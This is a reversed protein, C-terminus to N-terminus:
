KVTLVCPIVLSTDVVLKRKGRVVHKKGDGADEASELGDLAIRQLWSYLGEDKETNRTAQFDKYLKLSARDVAHGSVEIDQIREGRREIEARAADCFKVCRGDVLRVKVAEVGTSVAWRLYGVPVRTLREDKHKGGLVIADHTNM